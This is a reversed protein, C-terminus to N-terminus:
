GEQGEVGDGAPRSPTGPPVMKAAFRGSPGPSSRPRMGLRLVQRREPLVRAPAQRDEPDAQGAEAGGRLVRLPGNAGESGGQGPGPRDLSAWRRLEAERQRMAERGSRWADALDGVRASGPLASRLRRSIRRSAVAGFVAGAAFWRVRALM